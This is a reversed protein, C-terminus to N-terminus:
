KSHSKGGVTLYDPKEKLIQKLFVYEGDKPYYAGMKLSANTFKYPYDWNM